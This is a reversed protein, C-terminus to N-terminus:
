AVLLSVPSGTERAWRQIQGELLRVSQEREREAAGTWRKGPTRVLECLGTVLLVAPRGTGMESVIRNLTSQLWLMGGAFAGADIVRCDVTTRGEAYWRALRRVVTASSVVEGQPNKRAFRLAQEFEEAQFDSDHFVTRLLCHGARIESIRRERLRKSTGGGSM